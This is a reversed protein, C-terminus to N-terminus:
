SWCTVSYRLKLEACYQVRSQGRTTFNHFNLLKSVALQVSKLNHSTRGVSGVVVNLFSRLGEIVFLKNIFIIM